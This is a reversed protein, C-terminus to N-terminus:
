ALDPYSEDCPRGDGNRDLRKPKGELTWYEEVAPHDVGFQKLTACSLGSPLRTVDTEATDVRSGYVERIADEPYKTECPIGNVDADMLAPQGHLNWYRDAAAFDYGRGELDVCKLGEKLQDVPPLGAPASPEADPSAAGGSPSQTATAGSSPGTMAAPQPDAGGDDTLAAIAFGVGLGLAVVTAVGAAVLPGRRRRRPQADTIGPPPGSAYSPGPHPPGSQPPGPYAPGPHPPGPHPPVPGLLESALTAPEDSPVVEDVFLPRPPPLPPALPPALPVPPAGEAPPAEVPGRLTTDEMAAGHVPAGCHACFRTEDPLAAGCSSCTNM